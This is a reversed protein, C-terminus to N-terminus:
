DQPFMDLYEGRVTFIVYHMPKDGSHTGNQVPESNAICFRANDDLFLIDSDLFDGGLIVVGRKFPYLEEGDRFRTYYNKESDWQTRAIDFVDEPLGAEEFTIGHEFEENTIVKRFPEVTDAEGDYFPVSHENIGACEAADACRNEGYGSCTGLLFIDKNASLDGNKLGDIIQEDTVGKNCLVRFGIPYKFDEREEECTEYPIIVLRDEDFHTISGDEKYLTYGDGTNMCIFRHGTQGSVIFGRDTTQRADFLNCYNVGQDFFASIDAETCSYVKLFYSEHIGGVGGTVHQVDYTITYAKGPEVDCKGHPDCVGFYSTPDLLMTTDNNDQRFGIFTRTVEEETRYCFGDIVDDNYNRYEEGGNFISKILGGIGDGGSKESKSATTTEEVTKESEASAATTEAPSSSEAGSQSMTVAGTDEIATGAGGANDSIDGCGAMMLAATMAALIRSIHVKKM